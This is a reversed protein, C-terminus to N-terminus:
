SLLYCLGTHPLGRHPTPDRLTAAARGPGAQGCTTTRMQESIRPSRNFQIAFGFGLPRLPHLWHPVCCSLEMVFTDQQAYVVKLGVLSYLPSDVSFM